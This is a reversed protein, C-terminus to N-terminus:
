ALTLASVQPGKKGESIRIRVRTGEALQNLGAEELTSRHLFFEEGGEDATVFGFGKTSNYWKVTGLRGQGASAAQPAAAPRPDLEEEEDALLSDLEDAFLLAQDSTLAFLVRKGAEDEIEIQYTSGERAPTIRTLTKPKLPSPM